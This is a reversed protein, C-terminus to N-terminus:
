RSSPEASARCVPDHRRQRARQAILSSDLSCAYRQSVKRWIWAEWASNVAGAGSLAAILLVGPVCIRELTTNYLGASDSVDFRRCAGFGVANSGTTVGLWASLSQGLHYFVFLWVFFPLATFLGSRWTWSSALAPQDADRLARDVSLSAPVHAASLHRAPHHLRDDAAVPRAGHELQAM